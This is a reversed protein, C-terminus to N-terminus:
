QGNKLFCVHNWFDVVIHFGDDKQYVMLKSLACNRMRFLRAAEPNMNLLHALIARNVTAHGVILIQSHNDALIQDIGPKTRTYVQSFSEGGPIAVSVSSLWEQHFESNNEIVESYKLGEWDGLDVEVFSEVKAYPANHFQNIIEATQRTRELPSHYIMDIKKNKLENALALAEKKGTENLPNNMRGQLLDTQNYETTAHRVLFITKVLQM